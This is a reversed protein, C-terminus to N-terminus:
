SQEPVRPRSAPMGKVIVPVRRNIVEMGAYLALLSSGVVMWWFPSQPIRTTAESAAAALLGVYSWSMWYAHRGMWSGCPRRWRVTVFGAIVTVLSILAAVHFPGFQGFLRYLMFASVNLGLMSGVYARGVLRHSRTGKQRLIVALGTLLAAIAFALHAPGIM